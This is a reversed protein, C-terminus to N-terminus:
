LCARQAENETNALTGEYWGSPLVFDRGVDIAWAGDPSCVVRWPPTGCSGLEQCESFGSPLVQPPPETPTPTPPATTPTPTPPVETPTPTAEAANTPTPSPTSTAGGPTATGTATRTPSASAGVAATGSAGPSPSGGAIVTSGGSAQTPTENGAPQIDVGGDDGGGRLVLYAAAFVLLGIVGIAAIALVRGGLPDSGTRPREALVGRDRARYGRTVAVPAAAYSDSYGDDEDDYYDDEAEAADTQYRDEPAYRGAYYQTDDIVRGAYAPAEDADEVDDYGDDDASGGITGAGWADDREYRRVPPPAPMVPPPPPENRSRAFHDNRQQPAFPDNRPASRVPQRPGGVFGDPGAVPPGGGAALEALLPDPDIRLFNAYSRLFGRVYVPAPLEDFAEEELAQLFRGSIRTEAAVQDISLGREARANRLTRGIQAM